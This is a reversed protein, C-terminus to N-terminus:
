KRKRRLGERRIDECSRKVVPYKGHLYRFLERVLSPRKLYYCRLTGDEYFDVIQRHRLIALHQSVKSQRLELLDQINNVCKAGKYLEQLIMLRTPHGLLRLLEAKERIDLGQM